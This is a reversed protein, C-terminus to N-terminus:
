NFEFSGNPITFVVDGGVLGSADNYPQVGNCHFVNGGNFFSKPVALIAFKSQFLIGIQNYRFQNNAANVYALSLDNQVGEVLLGAVTVAEQNPPMTNTFTN